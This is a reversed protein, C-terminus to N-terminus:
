AAERAARIRSAADEISRIAPAGAGVREPRLGDELNVGVVGAKIIDGISRSVADPTDGYGSEIDATVRAVVWGAIRATAAATNADSRLICERTAWSIPRPRGTMAAAAM